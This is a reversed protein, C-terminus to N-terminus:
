KSYLYNKVAASNVNAKTIIAEGTGYHAKLHHNGNLYEIGLKVGMQGITYPAQAILATIQGNKVAQVQVPEADFEVLKIKGAVGSEKAGALVGDGTVVNMAFVGALDRHAAVMGKLIGGAKTADDTAYVTPLASIGPFKKLEQNFGQVRQDTTSVGPTTSIGAVLGKKGIAAALADAAAVGGAINDSSITTVAISPKQLTTDVLIVPIGAKVARAIPAQLAVKDTPAILILDPHQAIAANLYPLQTGPSFAAPSGTFQLSAGEAKAEATAGHSMTIYFADSAIGAILVIKYSKHLAAAHVRAHLGPMGSGIIAASFIGGIIARKLMSCEREYDM